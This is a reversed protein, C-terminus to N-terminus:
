DEEVANCMARQASMSCEARSRCVPLQGSIPAPGSRIPVRPDNRVGWFHCFHRSRYHKPANKGTEPWDGAPGRLLALILAQLGLNLSDVQFLFGCM